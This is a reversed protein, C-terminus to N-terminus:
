YSPFSKKHQSVLRYGTPLVFGKFRIVFFKHSVSLILSFYYAAWRSGTKADRVSKVADRVLAEFKDRREVNNKWRHM